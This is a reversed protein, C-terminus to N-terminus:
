IRGRVGVGMNLPNNPCEVRICNDCDGKCPSKLKKNTKLKDYKGTKVESCKRSCASSCSSKAEKDAKVKSCNKSCNSSCAFKAEKDCKRKELCHECDGKCNDRLHAYVARCGVSYMRRWCARPTNKQCSSAKVTKDAKHNECNKCDGKCADNNRCLGKQTHKCHESCPKVKGANDKCPSSHSPAAKVKNVNKDSGAAKKEGFRLNPPVQVGRKHGKSSVPKYNGKKGQSVDILYKDWEDRKQDFLKNLEEFRVRQEPTQQEVPMLSLIERRLERMSTVHEVWLRTDVDKIDGQAYLSVTLTLAMFLLLFTKRM